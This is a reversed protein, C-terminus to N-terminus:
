RRVNSTVSSRLTFPTTCVMIWFSPWISMRTLLAPMLLEQSYCEYTKDIGWEVNNLCKEAGTMSTSISSITHMKLVLTKAVTRVAFATMGYMVARLRPVITFTPDRPPMMYADVTEQGWVRRWKASLCVGLGIGHPPMYLAVLAASCESM